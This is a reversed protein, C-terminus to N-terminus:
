IPDLELTFDGALIYVNETGPDPTVPGGSLPIMVRVHAMGSGDPNLPDNPGVWQISSTSFSTERAVADTTTSGDNGVLDFDEFDPNEKDLDNIDYNVLGSPDLPSDQRYFGFTAAIAPMSGVGAIYRAIRSRYSTGMGVNAAFDLGVELDGLAITFNEPSTVPIDSTFTNGVMRTGGTSATWLGWSRVTCTPMSSFTLIQNNTVTGTTPATWKTSMDIRAYSGGTIETGTDDLLGLYKWNATVTSIEAGRVIKDYINELISDDIHATM